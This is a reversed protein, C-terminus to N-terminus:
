RGEKEYIEYLPDTAIIEFIQEFSLNYEYMLYLLYFAQKTNAGFVEKIKAVLKYTEHKYPSIRTLTGWKTYVGYNEVDKYKKVYRKVEPEISLAYIKPYEKKVYEVFRHYDQNKAVKNKHLKLSTVDINKHKRFTRARESSLGMERLFNYRVRVMYNNYERKLEPNNKLIINKDQTEIKEIKRDRWKRSLESSLGMSRLFQYKERRNM